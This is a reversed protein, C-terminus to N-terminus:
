VNNLAQVLALEDCGYLGSTNINNYEVVKYGDTTEAVDIVFAKSLPFQKIRDMTYQTMEKSPVMSVNLADHAKYSSSAVIAQNVVFFRYESVIEQIPSVLLNQGQYPSNKPDERKKWTDFEEKTIVMGTFLKTNGTPRIFFSEEKPELDWLEGMYFEHNLLEKGLHLQFVDFEFHENMFTGPKLRMENAINSLTKSGYVIIQNNKIFDNLVEASNDMPLKTKSELVTLTNGKNVKVLLYEVGLTELASIIRLMNSSDNLFEQVIWKM